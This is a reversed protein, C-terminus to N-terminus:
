ERIWQEKNELVRGIQWALTEKTYRSMYTLHSTFIVRVGSLKSKKLTSINESHLESKIEYVGLDDLFDFLYGMWIGEEQRNVNEKEIGTFSAAGTNCIVIVSPRLNELQSMSIKLQSVFFDVGADTRLLSLVEKQSTERLQLLDLHTWNIEQGGNIRGILTEFSRFYRHSVKTPNFDYKQEGDNGFSPNLGVFVVDLKETEPLSSITNSWVFGRKVIQALKGDGKSYKEFIEKLENKMKEDM